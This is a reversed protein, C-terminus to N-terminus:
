LRRSLSTPFAPASLTVTTLIDRCVFRKPTHISIRQPTRNAGTSISRSSTNNSNSSNSSSNATRKPTIPVTAAPASSRTQEANNPLTNPKNEDRILTSRAGAGTREGSLSRSRKSSPQPHYPVTTPQRHKIEGSSTFHPPGSFFPEVIKALQAVIDVDSPPLPPSCPSSEHTTVSAASSITLPPQRQQQVPTTLM